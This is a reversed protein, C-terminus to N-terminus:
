KDGVPAREEDISGVDPEVEGSECQVHVRCRNLSFKIADAGQSVHEAKGSCLAQNDSVRNYM